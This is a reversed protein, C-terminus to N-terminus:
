EIIEDATALLHPPISLGLAKATVLNITMAYRTPAQIPLEGAKAGKLIRDVYDAAQRVQEALDIGYAILGGAHVFRPYAYIGPLRNSTALSGILEAREREFTFSDSPVILGSGSKTGLLTVIRRIDEDNHVSGQVPVVGFAPAAAEISRMWMANYPSTQPNFMVTVNTVSPAVDKLLQLWKTGISPEFSSFGTLNGGPHALSNVFGQAVPDSVGWFVIPITSTAKHLPVLAATGTALLVDPASQVLEEANRVLRAPDNAGWRYDIELNRGKHWGAAGLQTELIEYL